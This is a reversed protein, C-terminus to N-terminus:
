PRVFARRSPLAQFAQILLAAENSDAKRSAIAMLRELGAFYVKSLHCAKGRDIERGHIVFRDVGGGVGGKGGPFAGRLKAGQKGLLLNAGTPQGLEAASGSGKEALALKGVMFFLVAGAMGGAGAGTGDRPDTM